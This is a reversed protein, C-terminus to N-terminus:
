RPYIMPGSQITWCTAEYYDTCRPSAVLEIHWKNRIVAGFGNQADVEGTVQWVNPKLKYSQITSYVFDASSPSKLNHQVQTMAVAEVSKEQREARTPLPEKTKSQTNEGTIKVYGYWCFFLIVFIFTASWVIGSAMGITPLSEPPCPEPEGCHPCAVAATSVIKRCTRCPGQKTMKPQAEIIQVNDARSGIPSEPKQELVEKYAQQKQAEFKAKSRKRKNQKIENGDFGM